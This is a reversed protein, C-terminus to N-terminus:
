TRALTIDQSTNSNHTSRMERQQLLFISVSLYICLVCLPFHMADCAIFRCFFWCVACRYSIILVCFSFLISYVFCWSLGVLVNDFHISTSGNRRIRISTLIKNISETENPAVSETNYRHIYSRPLFLGHIPHM